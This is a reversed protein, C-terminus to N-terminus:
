KVDLPYTGLVKFFACVERLEKLAEQVRPVPEILARGTAVEIVHLSADESGGASVGYALRRGDWSPVMYNIAHPVGGQAKALQEPDVLVREAGALGDRVMLKFQNAGEPRKLYFLRDGTVRVLAGLADGASQTLQAIRAALADRGEIGALTQSAHEAQAKMWAQTAPLKLDELDRYPDHVAVGHYTDVVDRVPALPPTAAGALAPTLTSLMLLAARLRM